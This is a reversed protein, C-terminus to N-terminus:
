SAASWSLFIILGVGLLLRYIVFPLMGMKSIIKLFYHICILASVFSLLVGFLIGSIDYQAPEGLLKTTQYGGSLVIIPISLLFSFRAASVKDLGLLMAATM